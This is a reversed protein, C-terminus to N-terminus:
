KKDRHGKKVMTALLVRPPLSFLLVLEPYAAVSELLCQKPVQCALM